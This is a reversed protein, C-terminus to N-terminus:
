SGWGFRGWDSEAEKELARPIWASLIIAWRELDATDLFRLWLGVRPRSSLEMPTCAERYVRPTGTKTYAAFGFHANYEEETPVRCKAIVANQVGEIERKEDTTLVDYMEAFERCLAVNGRHRSRTLLVQFM